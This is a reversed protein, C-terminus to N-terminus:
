VYKIVPKSSIVEEVTIPTTSRYWKPRIFYSDDPVTFEVNSTDNGYKSVTKDSQLSKNEAYFRIDVQTVQLGTLVMSAGPSVVIMGETRVNYNSPDGGYNKNVLDSYDLLNKKGPYTVTVSDSEDVGVGNIGVSSVISDLDSLNVETPTALPYCIIVDADSDMSTPLTLYIYKGSSTIRFVNQANSSANYKAVNCVASTATSYDALVSTIDISKISYGEPATGSGNGLESYKKSVLAMTVKLKGANWDVVGGYVTSPFTATHSDYDSIDAGSHKLTVSDHGSIARVNEPSPDGSGSQVPKLTFSIKLPKAATANFIAVAATVTNWAEGSVAKMMLLKRIPTMGRGFLYLPNM